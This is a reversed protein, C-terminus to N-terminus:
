PRCYMGESPSPRQYWYTPGVVSRVNSNRIFSNRAETAYNIDIYPGCWYIRGDYYEPKVYWGEDPNPQAYARMFGPQINAGSPQSLLATGMAGPQGYPQSTSSQRALEAFLSAVANDAPPEKLYLRALPHEHDLCRVTTLYEVSEIMEIPIKIWHQCARGESFLLTNTDNEEQKVLGEKIIPERLQGESLAKLFETGTFSKPM